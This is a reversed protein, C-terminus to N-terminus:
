INGIAQVISEQSDQSGQDLVMLTLSAWFARISTAIGDGLFPGPPRAGELSPPV